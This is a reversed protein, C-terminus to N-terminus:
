CYDFLFCNVQSNEDEYSWLFDLVSARVVRNKPRLKENIFSDWRLDDLVEQDTTILKLKDLIFAEPDDPCNIALASM